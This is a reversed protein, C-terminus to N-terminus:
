GVEECYSMDTNEYLWYRMVGNKYQYKERCVIHTVDERILEVMLDPNACTRLWEQLSEGMNEAEEHTMGETSISVVRM